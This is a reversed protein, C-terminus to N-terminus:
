LGDKGPMSESGSDSFSYPPASAIATPMAYEIMPLTDTPYTIRYWLWLLFAAHVIADLPVTILIAYM